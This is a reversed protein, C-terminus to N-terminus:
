ATPVCDHKVRIALTSDLCRSVAATKQRDNDPLVALEDRRDVSSSEWNGASCMSRDKRCTMDSGDSAARLCRRLVNRNRREYIRTMRM